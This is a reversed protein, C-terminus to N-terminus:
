IDILAFYLLRLAVKGEILDNHQEQEPERGKLSLTM